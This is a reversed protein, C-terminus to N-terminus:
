LHRRGSATCHTRPPERRLGHGAPHYGLALLCNSAVMSCRSQPSRPQQLTRTCHVTPLSPTAPSSSQINTHLQATGSWLSRDDEIMSECAIVAHSYRNDITLRLEKLMGAQAALSINTRDILSMAYLAALPPVLRWDVKRRIKKIVSAEYGDDPHVYKVQKEGDDYSNADHGSTVVHNIDDGGVYKEESGKTETAYVQQM